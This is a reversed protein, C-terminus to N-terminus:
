VGIRLWGHKVLQLLISLMELESTAPIEMTKVVTGKVTSQYLNARLPQDQQFKEM